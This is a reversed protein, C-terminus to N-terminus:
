ARMTGHGFQSRRGGARPGRAAPPRCAPSRHEPAHLRAAVRAKTYRHRRCGSLLRAMFLIRSAYSPPSGALRASSCVISSAFRNLAATPTTLTTGTCGPRAGISGTPRGCRGRPGLQELRALEEPLRPDLGDQQLRAAVGGLGDLADGVLVPVVRDHDPGAAQVREGPHELSAHGLVDGRVGVGGDDDGASRRGADLSADRRRCAGDRPRATGNKSDATMVTAVGVLGAAPQGNTLDSSHEIRQSAPDTGRGDRQSPMARSASGTSFLSAANVSSSRSASPSRPRRGGRTTSISGLDHELELVHPALRVVELPVDPQGRELIAVLRQEM